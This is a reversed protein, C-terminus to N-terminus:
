DHTRGGSARAREVQPLRAIVKEAYAQGAASRYNGQGANYAALAQAVDGKAWRLLQALKTCGLELNTRVDVLGPLYPSRYGLERAVAGMIQMLGWSAQQGWWEQDRDGALTQFDAPPYKARAENPTVRRFPRKRRVDWLWRYHPEPNWAWPDGASEVLCIAEVLDPSLHAEAAATEIAERHLTVM